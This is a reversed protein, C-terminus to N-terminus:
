RRDRIKSKFHRNFEELHMWTKLGNMRDMYFYGNLHDVEHQIVRAEFGHVTRRIKQGNPKQAEFTVWKSRPVVGRFGPISLCGEWGKEKSLSYEIIRANIYTQLPFSEVRPYRKNGLCEMVLARDGFGLQNAALGVGKAKRMEPVMKKLFNQFKKSVLRRGTVARTKKRLVPNGIKVIKYEM